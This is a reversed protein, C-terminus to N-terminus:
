IEALAQRYIAQRKEDKSITAFILIRLLVGIKIILYALLYEFRSFHKSFIYLYGNLEGLIANKSSSSQSGLHIIPAAPDIAIQWNKEQARYCLEVDEAYMFIDEDLLGVQDLVKKRIMMATGGVWDQYVLGSTSKNVLRSNKGTHQVSPLLKGLIPIDDLFFMQNALSILSLRDGGQPQLTQDKNLLQAAVIGLKKNNELSAVLKELANELVITDSNLLLIYQGRAIKIGQNNAQSFGLNEQNIIIEFKLNKIKLSKDILELTNDQSNNDVVIIECNNKLIKSRNISDIASQIAQLTLKATNYSVIIISLTM